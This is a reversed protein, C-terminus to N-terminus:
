PERLAVLLLLGLILLGGATGFLVRAADVFVFGSAVLLLVVAILVLGIQGKDSRPRRRPHPKAEAHQEVLKEALDKVEGALPVLPTGNEDRPDAVPTVVKEGSSVLGLIGLATVTLVGLSVWRTPDVGFLSLAQAALALLGLLAGRQRLPYRSDLLKVFFRRHRTALLLVLEVLAVGLATIAARLSWLSDRCHCGGRVVLRAPAVLPLTVRPLAPLTIPPVPVTPVPLRPVLRTTSTAPTPRPATTAPSAPVTTTPRVPAPTASPPTLGQAEASERARRIQEVVRRSTERAEARQEPTSEPDSLVSIAGALDELGVLGTSLNNITDGQAASKGDLRAYLVVLGGFSLGVIVLLAWLMHQYSSLRGSRRRAVEQLTEAM